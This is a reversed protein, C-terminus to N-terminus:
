FLTLSLSPSLCLSAREINNLWYNCWKLKLWLYFCHEDAPASLSLIIGQNESRMWSWEIRMDAYFALMEKMGNQLQIEHTKDQKWQIQFYALYKREYEIEKWKFLASCGRNNKGRSSNICHLSVSNFLPLPSFFFRCFFLLFILLSGVFRTHQKNYDRGYISLWLIFIARSKKIDCQIGRFIRKLMRENARESLDLIRGLFFVCKKEWECKNFYWKSHDCKGEGVANWNTKNNIAQNSGRHLYSFIWNKILDPVTKNICDVSLNLPFKNWSM